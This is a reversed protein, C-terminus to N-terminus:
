NNLIMLSPKNYYAGIEDLLKQDNNLSKFLKPKLNGKSNILGQALKDIAITSLVVQIFGEILDDNSIGLNNFERREMLLLRNTDSGWSGDDKKYSLNTGLISWSDDKGSLKEVLPKAARRCYISLPKFGTQTAHIMIRFDIVFSKKNKNPMSGVHYYVRSESISSWHYNGILSQVIFKEYDYTGSMFADLETESTITFVGQGANSYPIKIVAKGGFKQVWLPIEEKSVDWITQPCLIELNKAKIEANFLSYAKSATLKNRGGALCTIIPNVIVTKSSIPLRNWPKHTLYRFVFDLTIWSGDETKCELYDEKNLRLPIEEHNYCSILLVKKKTADALAHAYGSAEMYNKDYIVAINGQLKNRYKPIITQAIFKKYGGQEQYEDLLPMSKQGSPCSNNEILIMKKNGDDTTVHILDGGSLYFYKPKYTLIEFLSKKEVKPNLHCYREVIQETSLNFFFKVSPHITANLAKEYWHNEPLFTNPFIEEIM